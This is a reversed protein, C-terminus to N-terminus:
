HPLTCRVPVAIACPAPDAAGRASLRAAIAEAEAETRTLAFCASGSGTLRPAHGGAASIAALLREIEPSLSRAPPELDNAMLREADGRRGETLAAVLRAADGRRGADPTCRAYVAATSLGFGPWAIVAAQDPLGAVPTVHEGRGAVIAPGGAFFWPVDSGIRGGLEALRDTGWDLRWLRAAARMVAAADSSGGGLGAGSPVRKVLHVDLGTDVGAETALLAAARVVLNRDDTPVDRAAEIGALPGAYSVTLGVGAERRSRVHLTDALTVPVMLSEIEHFGDPRRALVALSLNLKAPAAVTLGDIGACGTSAAGSM